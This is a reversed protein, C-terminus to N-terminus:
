KLKNHVRIEKNGTIQRATQMKDGKLNYTTEKKLRREEGKLICSPNNYVKISDSDTLVVLFQTYVAAITDNCIWSSFKEVFISGHRM